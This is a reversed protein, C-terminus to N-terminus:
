ALKSLVWGYEADYTLACPAWEEAILISLPRAVHIDHLATRFELAVDGTFGGKAFGFICAGDRLTTVEECIADFVAKLTSRDAEVYIFETM